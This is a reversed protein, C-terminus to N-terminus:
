GYEASENLETPLPLFLYVRSICTCTYRTHVQEKRQRKKVFYYDECVSKFVEFNCIHSTVVNFLITLLIPTFTDGISKAFTDGISKAFTDIDTDAISENYLIPIM